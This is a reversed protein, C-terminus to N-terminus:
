FFCETTSFYILALLPMPHGRNEKRHHCHTYDIMYYNICDAMYLVDYDVPLLVASQLIIKLLAKYHMYGHGVGKNKVWTYWM